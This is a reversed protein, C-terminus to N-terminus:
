LGGLAFVAHLAYKQKKALQLRKILPMPFVFIAVDTAINLSANAMWVAMESLCTGQHTWFGSVPNCMFITGTM